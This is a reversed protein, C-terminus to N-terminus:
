LVRILAVASIALGIVGTIIGAKAMGIAAGEPAQKKVQVGFVLAIVGAAVGAASIWGFWAFAVSVIGLVLSAVMKKKNVQAYAVAEEPATTAGCYPCTSRSDDAVTAGCKPCIM